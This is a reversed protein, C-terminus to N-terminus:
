VVSKRDVNTIGTKGACNILIHIKDFKLAVNKIANKVDQEKTIDLDILLAKDGYNSFEKELAEKNIDLGVVNANNALLSKAIALGIGSAAGTVIAVQGEFNM